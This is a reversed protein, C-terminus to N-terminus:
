PGTMEDLILPLMLFLTLTIPKDFGMKLNIVTNGKGLINRIFVIKVSGVM